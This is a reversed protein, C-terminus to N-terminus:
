RDIAHGAFMLAVCASLYGLATGVEFGAKVGAALGGFQMVTSVAGTSKSATVLKAFATRANGLLAALKKKM